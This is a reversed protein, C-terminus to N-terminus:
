FCHQTSKPLLLVTRTYTDATRKKNKLTLATLNKKHLTSCPLIIFDTKKYLKLHELISIPLVSSLRRRLAVPGTFHCGTAHFSIRQRNPLTKIVRPMASIISIVCCCYVAVPIFACIAFGISIFVISATKSRTNPVDYFM